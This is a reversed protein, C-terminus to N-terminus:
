TLGILRDVDLLSPRTVIGSPFFNPSHPDAIGLFPIGLGLAADCETISDGIALAQDPTCSETELIRAFAEPKGTPAGHVSKFFHSLNRTRVIEVLEDYPTGSILHM